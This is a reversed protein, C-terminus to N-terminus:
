LFFSAALSGVGAVALLPLLVLALGAMSLAGYVIVGYVPTANEGGIWAGPIVSAPAALYAYTGGSVGAMMMGSLLTLAALGLGVGGVGRLAMVVPSSGGRPPTDVAAPGAQPAATDPTATATTVAPDPSTTAAAPAATAAPKVEAPATEAPKATVAAASPSAAAVPAAAKLAVKVEFRVGPKVEVDQSAPDFGAKVARFPYKGPKLWVRVPFNTHRRGALEVADPVPEVSVVVKGWEQMKREVGKMKSKVVSAKDSKPNERLFADYHGRAEDLRNLNENTVGLNLRIKADPNLEFAHEFNELAAEFDGAKFAEIAARNYEKAPNAGDEAHVNGACLVLALVAQVVRWM